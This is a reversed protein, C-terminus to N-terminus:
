GHVDAKEILVLAENFCAGGGLDNVVDSILANPTLGGQLHRMWLGKPIECVGPRMRGDISVPLTISALENRVQVLEGDVLERERADNPHVAIAITPPDYEAFMSNTNRATASTILRLWQGTESRGVVPVPLPLEASPSYVIARGDTPFVDRFQVSKQSSIVVEMPKIDIEEARPTAIEVNLRRALERGLWDNSRADGVPEIVKQVRQLVFSGYSAAVDNVEFQTTAPLVVDAMRATDTMVQEHVVTFVNENMMAAIMTQQDNATVVPNAGQVLLVKPTTTQQLLRGVHNMNITNRSVDISPLMASVSESSKRSTSALVGSGEQGFKGAVAWLSLVALMGSGGNINREVGWGIRLMAKSHKELLDVCQSIVSAEVGCEEAGSEISWSSCARLFEEAGSVYQSIFASDLAGRRSLESVLTMAFVADTGPLLSVHLDSREAIGTRRPDVVVIIGGNEKCKNILPPLHSNSATSNAGWVFLVEASPITFPDASDMGPFVQRWAEGFTFACITHEIDPCGLRAFLEVTSGQGEIIGSSSNYLYPFVSDVGHHAISSSVRQAVLNLAEDWTASRFEGSGKSGTRILPTAIREPSYIRKTSMQVKRCIFGDTFPSADSDKAADIDTIVGDTVTVDLSCADPCDLTCATRVVKVNM